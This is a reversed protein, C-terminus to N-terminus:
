NGQGKGSPVGIAHAPTPNPILSGGMNQPYHLNKGGNLRDWFGITAGKGFLGGWVLWWFVQM